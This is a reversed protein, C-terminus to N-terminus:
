VVSISAFDRNMWIIIPGFECAHKDHLVKPVGHIEHFILLSIEPSEM